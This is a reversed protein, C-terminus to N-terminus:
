YYYFLPLFTAFLPSALSMVGFFMLAGLQATAFGLSFAYLCFSLSLCDSVRLKM